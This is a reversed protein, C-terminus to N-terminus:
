SIPGISDFPFLRFVAHGLIESEKVFGVLHSRSDTSGNRNDGMVFYCGEPVVFTNETMDEPDMRGLTRYVYPERLVVGDVTVTWTDFDITVTEGEMAIIRKILLENRYYGDEKDIVVVDLRDPTYFLNTMLIRDEHQLTNMMSGGSVTAMRGVFMFILIVLVVVYCIEEYAEYLFEKTSTKKKEAPLASQKMEDM